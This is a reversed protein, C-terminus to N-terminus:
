SDLKVAGAARRRGAGKGRAARERALLWAKRASGWRYGGVGGTAPVVRHCPICLAVPNRACARAVARAAGPRRIRRALEGYTRTEGPPIAALAAWVQRDFRTGTVDLPVAKPARGAAIAAVLARAWRGLRPHAADYVAGPMRREFDAKLSRRGAGFAVTSVGKATAAVLVSGLPSDVVTYVM